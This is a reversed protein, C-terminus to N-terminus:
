RPRDEPARVRGNIRPRRAAAYAQRASVAILLSPLSTAWVGVLLRRPLHGRIAMVSTIPIDGIQALMVMDLATTALQGDASAAARGLALALCLERVGFIRIWWRGAPSV